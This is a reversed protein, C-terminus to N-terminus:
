AAPEPPFSGCEPCHDPTARLDYGCTPCLGLRNRSRDLATRRLFRGLTLLPLLATGVVAKWHAVTIMEVDLVRHWMEHIQATQSFDPEGVLDHTWAQASV